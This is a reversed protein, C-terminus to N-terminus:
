VIGSYSESSRKLCIFVIFSLSITLLSVAVCTWFYPVKCYFDIHHKGPPVKIGRLMYFAPIIDTDKGDLRAHWFPHYLDSIVLYAEEKAEVAISVYELEYKEIHAPSVPFEYSTTNIISNDDSIIPKLENMFESITQQNVGYVVFARSLPESLRASFLFGEVGPYAVGKIEKTDKIGLEKIKKDIEEMDIPIISQGSIPSLKLIYKVGLLKFDNKDIPPVVFVTERYITNQDYGLMNRKPLKAITREPILPSYGGWKEEPRIGFKRFIVWDRYSQPTLSDSLNLQGISDLLSSGFGYSFAYGDYNFLYVRATPSDCLEKMVKRLEPVGEYFPYDPPPDQRLLAASYFFNSSASFIIICIVVLPVAMSLIWNNYRRLKNVYIYNLDLSSLGSVAIVAVAFNIIHSDRAPLWTLGTLYALLIQGHDRMLFVFLISICALKVMKNKQLHMCGLWLLAFLLIKFSMPALVQYHPHTETRFWFHVILLFVFLTRLQLRLNWEESNTAPVIKKLFCIVKWRTIAILYHKICYNNHIRTSSSIGASVKNEIGITKNSSFFFNKSLSILVGVITGIFVPSKTFSVIEPVGWIELWLSLITGSLLFFIRSWRRKLEICLYFLLGVLIMRMLSSEIISQFLNHYMEYSFINSLNADTVRGSLKTVRSIVNLQWLHASLGSLLPLIALAIMRLTHLPKHSYFLLASIAIYLMYVTTNYFWIEPRTAFMSFVITWFIYFLYKYNETKFWQYAFFLLLINHIMSHPFVPHFIMRTTTPLMIFLIVGAASVMPNFGLKIFAYLGAFLVLAVQVVTIYHYQLGFLMEWITYIDIPFIVAISPVNGIGWYPNWLPLHGSLLQQTFWHRFSFYMGLNTNAYYRKFTYFDYLFYLTFGLIVIVPAIYKYIKQIGFKNM